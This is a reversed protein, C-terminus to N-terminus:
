GLSPKRLLVYLAGTGGDKPLASSFTLTSPNEELWDSIANKLKGSGKGHIILLTRLNKSQCNELFNTLATNAESLTSGHLDLKAQINLKGQKLKKLTKIQIGPRAFFLIEEPSRTIEIDYFNDERNIREHLDLKKPKLTKKRLSVKETKRKRLPKVGTMAKQFQEKDKDSAM